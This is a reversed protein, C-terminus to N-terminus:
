GAVFKEPVRVEGVKVYFVPAPIKFVPTETAFSSAISTSPTTRSARGLVM